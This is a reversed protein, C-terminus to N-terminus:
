RSNKIRKQNNNGPKSSGQNNDDPKSSGQNNDGPKNDDEGPESGKVTLYQYADQNLYEYPKDIAYGAVGLYNNFAATDEETWGSSPTYRLIEAAICFKHTSTGIRLHDCKSDSKLTDSWSRIIGKAMKAYKDNGTIYWMLTQEYAATSARVLM